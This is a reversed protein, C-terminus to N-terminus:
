RARGLIDDLMVYSNDNVYNLARVIAAILMVCCVQSPTIRCNPHQFCGTPEFYVGSFGLATPEPTETPLCRKAQNRPM